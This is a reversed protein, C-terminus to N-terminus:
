HGELSYYTVHVNKIADVRELFAIETKVSEINDREIQFWVLEGDVDEIEMGRDMLQDVIRKVNGVGAVEIVGGASVM